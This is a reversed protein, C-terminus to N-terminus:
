KMSVPYQKALDKLGVKILQQLVKLDIDRVRKIYLCAKGLKHPGLKQLIESYDNYGPMIYITPGSKRLAFGTAFMEGERGTPYKYHYTGFGIMNGWLTPKAGTTEKFLKLLQKAEQRARTDEIAAVFASVSQKTPKTKNQKSM